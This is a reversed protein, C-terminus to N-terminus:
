VIIKFTDLMSLFTINPLELLSVKLICYINLSKVDMEVLNHPFILIKMIAILKSTCINDYLYIELNRQM